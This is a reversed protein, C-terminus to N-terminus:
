ASRQRGGGARDLVPLTITSPRRGGYRVTQVAAPELLSLHPFNSSAVEVRIRHGRQFTMATSGVRVDVSRVRGPTLDIRRAGDVVNIARGDPHVDCVKVMVDAREATSTFAISATITGVVTVDRRLPDTTYVLIDDRQEVPRQDMPGALPLVPSLSRGGRNAVPDAPDHRYSGEGCSVPGDWVLRGDGDLGNARTASTLHLEAPTSPPPWSLLDLWKNRGMVFVRAGSKTERRDLAASLFARMEDPLGEALGNAALGFDVEATNPVYLGAHTWPGVVLRQSRRAYDTRAYASMGAYAALTGECFIDYWGALHWAPLDLKRYARSADIPGWYADDDYASWRDLDPFAAAVLDRGPGGRLVAPWDDALRVLPRAEAKRIGPRSAALMAAWSVPFANRLVGGEYFFTDRFDTGTVAPAIAGLAPPQGIAALWQTAGNYSPGAMAVRGTSWPQAACWAVTDVGDAVEQHFPRFSGESDFRGRVDQFVVAWGHRAWNIPDYYERLGARSYPTRVLLVPHRAVDDPRVVDCALLVGDRLPM